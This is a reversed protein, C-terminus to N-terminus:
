DSSAEILDFVAAAPAVSRMLEVGRRADALSAFGDWGALIQGDASKLLFQFGGPGCHLEYIGQMHQQKEKSM